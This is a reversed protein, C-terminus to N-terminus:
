HTLPKMYGMVALHQKDIVGSFMLFVLPKRINESPTSLSMARAHPLQVGDMFVPMFNKRKLAVGPQLPNLTNIM